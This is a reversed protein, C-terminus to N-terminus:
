KTLEPSVRVLIRDEPEETFVDDILIKDYLSKNTIDSLTVDRHTKYKIEVVVGDHNSLTTKIYQENVYVNKMGILERVINKAKIACNNYKDSVVLVKYEKKETNGGLIDVIWKSLEKVMKESQRTQREGNFIKM